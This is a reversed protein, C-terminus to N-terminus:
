YLMIMDSPWMRCSSSLLRVRITSAQVYRSCRMMLFLFLKSGYDCLRNVWLVGLCYCVNEGMMVGKESMPWSSVAVICLFQCVIALSM